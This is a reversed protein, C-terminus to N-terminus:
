QKLFFYIEKDQGDTFHDLFETGICEKGVHAIRAKKEILTRKKNDLHFRVLITDQERLQTGTFFQIGVGKQSLNHIQCAVANGKGTEPLLLEGIISTPKRYKRRYEIQTSFTKECTCKIKLKRKKAPIKEAAVQKVRNCYPCEIPILGTQNIYSQTLAAMNM